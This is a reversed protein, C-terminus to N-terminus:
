SKFPLNFEGGIYRDATNIEKSAKKNIVSVTKKRIGSSWLPTAACDVFNESSLSLLSIIVM